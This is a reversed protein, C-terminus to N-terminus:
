ILCQPGWFLSVSWTRTRKPRKGPNQSDEVPLALLAVERHSLVVLNLITVSWIAVCGVGTALLLIMHDLAAEQEEEEVAPDVVDVALIELDVAVVHVVEEDEEGNAEGGIRVSQPGAQNDM